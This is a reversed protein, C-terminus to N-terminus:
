INNHVHLCNGCQAERRGTFVRRFESCGCTQCLNSDSVDILLKSRGSAGHKRLADGEKIVRHRPNTRYDGSEFSLLTKVKRSGNSQGDTGNVSGGSGVSNISGHRELQSFLTEKDEKSSEEMYEASPEVTDPSLTRSSYFYEANESTETKRIWAKEPIEKFRRFFDLDDEFM